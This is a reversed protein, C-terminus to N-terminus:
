TFPFMNFRQAQRDAEEQAKAAQAKVLVMDAQCRSPVQSM